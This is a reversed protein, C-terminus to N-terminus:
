LLRTLGDTALYTPPFLGRARDLMEGHFAPSQLPNIHILLLEGVAAERAVRAADEAATHALLTKQLEDSDGAGRIWAEHALLRVSRVFEVADPDYVTDTLFAFLDGVRYAVSGGPHNQERVRLELGALRQSGTAISTLSVKMPFDTFGHPFFPPGVLRHLVDPQSRIVAAPVHITTERGPWLAPLYTLGVTHDLHLHSLLVHVPGAGATLRRYGPQALRAIGTGADFVLLAEPTSLVLCTTERGGGPMWGGSGLVVLEM